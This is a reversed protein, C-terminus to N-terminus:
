VRRRSVRGGRRVARGTAAPRLSDASGISGIFGAPPAVSPRGGRLLTDVAAGHTGRGLELQIMPLHPPKGTGTHGSVIVVQSTKEAEAIDSRAASVPLQSPYEFKM